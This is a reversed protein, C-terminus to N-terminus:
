LTESENGYIIELPNIIRVSPFGALLNVGNFGSERRVNVLHRFNWSVLYDCRAITCAAVHRADDAYKRTVVGSSVYLSALDDMESTFELISDPLFSRHFLEVVPQPAARLEEAAVASTVFCFRGVEMQRWLERTPELWEEDFYGGLVSTDLYLTITRM